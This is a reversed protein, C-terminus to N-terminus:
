LSIATLLVIPGFLDSTDCSNKAISRGDSVDLRVAELRTEPQSRYATM